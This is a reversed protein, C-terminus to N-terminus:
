ITQELLVGVSLVSKGFFGSTEMEYAGKQKLINMKELKLIKYVISIIMFGM